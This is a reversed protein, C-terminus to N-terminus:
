EQTSTPTPQCQYSNLTNTNLLIDSISVISYNRPMSKSKRFTKLIDAWFIKKPMLVPLSCAKVGIQELLQRFIYFIKRDKWNANNLIVDLTFREQIASLIESKKVNM